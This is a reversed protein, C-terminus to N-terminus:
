PLPYLAQGATGGVWLLRGIGMVRGVVQRRARAVGQGVEIKKPQTTTPLVKTQRLADTRANTQRDCLKSGSRFPIRCHLKPIDMGAYFLLMRASEM